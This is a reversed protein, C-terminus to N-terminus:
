RFSLAAFDGFPLVEVDDDARGGTGEDSELEDDHGEDGIGRAGGWEGRFERLDACGKGGGGDDVERGGEEEGRCEGSRPVADEGDGGEEFGATEDSEDIGGGDGEAHSALGGVDGLEFVPEEM